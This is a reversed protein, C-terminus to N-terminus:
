SNFKASFRTCLTPRVDTVNRMSTNACKCPVRGHMLGTTIILYEDGNNVSRRYDISRLKTTMRVRNNDRYRRILRLPPETVLSMM